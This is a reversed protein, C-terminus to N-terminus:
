SRSATFARSLAQAPRGRRGNGGSMMWRQLQLFATKLLFTIRRLKGYCVNGAPKSFNRIEQKGIGSKSCRMTLKWQGAGRGAVSRRDVEGRLRSDFVHLGWQLREPARTRRARLANCARARFEDRIESSGSPNRAQAELRSWGVSPEDRFSPSLDPHRERHSKPAISLRLRPSAYRTCNEDERSLIQLRSGDHRPARRSPAM